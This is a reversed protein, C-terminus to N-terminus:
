DYILIDVTTTYLQSVEGIQSGRSTRSSNRSHGNQSSEASDTPLSAESPKVEGNAMRKSANKRDKELADDTVPGDSNNDHEMPSVDSEIHYLRDSREQSPKISLSTSPTMTCRARILDLNGAANPQVQSLQNSLSDDLSSTQSNPPSKTNTELNARGSRPEQSAQGVHM